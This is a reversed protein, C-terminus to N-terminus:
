LCQAKHHESTIFVRIPATLVALLWPPHFGYHLVCRALCGQRATHVCCMKLEGRQENGYSCVGAGGEVFSRMVRGCRCYGVGEDNEKRM